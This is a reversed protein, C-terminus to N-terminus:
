ARGFCNFKSSSKTRTQLEESPKSSLTFKTSIHGGSAYTSKLAKYPQKTAKNQIALKNSKVNENQLQRPSTSQLSTERSLIATSYSVPPRYLVTTFHRQTLCSARPFCTPCSHLYIAVDTLCVSQLRQWCLLLDPFHGKADAGPSAPTKSNAQVKAVLTAPNLFQFLFEQSYCAAGLEDASSSLVSM